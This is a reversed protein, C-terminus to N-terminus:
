AAVHFGSFVLLRELNMRSRSITYIKELQHSLTFRNHKRIPRMDQFSALVCLRALEFHTAVVRLKRTSPQAHAHRDDTGFPHEGVESGGLSIMGREM